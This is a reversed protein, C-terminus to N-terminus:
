IIRTEQKKNRTEEIAKDVVDVRILMGPGGGYPRDDVAGYNNWAWKKLNHFNIKIKKNKIARAIISKSFVGDFVEPFLTLIDFNM